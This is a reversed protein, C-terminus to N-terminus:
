LHTSCQEAIMVCTLAIVLCGMAYYSSPRDQDDQTILLTVGIITAVGFAVNVLVASTSTYASAVWMPEPPRLLPASRLLEMQTGPEDSRWLEARYCAPFGLFIEVEAGDPPVQDERFRFDTRGGIGPQWCHFNVAYLVVLTIAAPFLQSRDFKM